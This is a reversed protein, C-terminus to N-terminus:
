SCICFWCTQLLIPDTFPPLWYITWLSHQNLLQTQKDLVPSDSSLEIDRLDNVASPHFNPKKSSPEVQNSPWQKASSGIFSISGMRLKESPIHVKVQTNRHAARCLESWCTWQVSAGHFAGEQPKPFSYHAWDTNRHQFISNYGQLSFNFVATHQIMCPLPFRTSKTNKTRKDLNTVSFSFKVKLRYGFESHKGKIQPIQVILKRQKMTYM